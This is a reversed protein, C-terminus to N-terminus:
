AHVHAVGREDPTPTTCARTLLSMGMGAIALDRVGACVVQVPSPLVAGLAVLVVGVVLMVGTWRPLVGARVTATGFACGAALMLAGHVTVWPGLDGVLTDWDPSRNVLALLVTGTFFVFAYAYGVAGLLGLTGIQPRQAAYLGLVFVPIAAEAVYTLLLQPTSFGGQALEWVDSFFYLASFVVAATGVLLALPGRATSVQTSTIVEDNM